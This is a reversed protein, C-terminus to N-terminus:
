APIEGADRLFELLPLMPLGLITFHGGTIASFLQLGRGEIKYAGVSTMADNGISALYSDLCTDSFSRMTLTAQERYDWLPKGDRSCCVASILVHTNGRLAKLHNRAEDPNGPKDYIKGGFVLVQDAGIVLENRHSQSISLSKETALLTAMREPRADPRNQKLETEDILPHQVTFSIGANLLLLRRITSSSALIIAM